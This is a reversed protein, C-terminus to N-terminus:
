IIGIHKGDAELVEFVQQDEHWKPIDNKETFSLGFLKNALAFVGDRVANVEFYPRTEEEDFNYREKRVKEVYHRWDSGEFTGVVGESQMKTALAERESKAIAMAPHWLKDLFEYVATPTEAMNDSLIYAAHSEYGLLKAKELRLAAM